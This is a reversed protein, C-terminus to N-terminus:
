GSSTERGERAGGSGSESGGEPGTVRVEIRMVSDDSLAERVRQALEDSLWRVEAAWAPDDVAVLLVGHRVRIPRTHAALAPGVLREWEGHLGAVARGPPAGLGRLLRDLGDGVPRPERSFGGDPTPLPEVAM